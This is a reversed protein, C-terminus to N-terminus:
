LYKFIEIGHFINTFWIKINWCYVTYQYQWLIVVWCVVIKQLGQHLSLYLTWVPISHFVNEQIKNRRQQSHTVKYFINNIKEHFRLYYLKQQCVLFILLAGKPLTTLDSLNLDGYIIRSFCAINELFTWYFHWHKAFPM